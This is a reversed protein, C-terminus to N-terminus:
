RSSVRKWTVASRQMQERCHSAMKSIARRPARIGVGKDGHQLSILKWTLGVRLTGTLLMRNVHKNVMTMERILMPLVAAKLAISDKDVVARM